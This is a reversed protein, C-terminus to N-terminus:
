KRRYFLARGAPILQLLVDHDSVDATLVVLGLKQAQLFVVCDSPCAAQRGERVRPPPVSNRCCHRGGSCMADPAFIRHPPMAKIQRGIGRDCGGGNASRVPEPYRGHADAGPDSCDLSQGTAPRYLDDLV